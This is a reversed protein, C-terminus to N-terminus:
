FEKGVNTSKRVPRLAPVAALARQDRPDVEVVAGPGDFRYFKHTKPGMVTLGTKGLYQFYVPTDREPQRQSSTRRTPEPVRPPETTRSLQARKNGCCSM